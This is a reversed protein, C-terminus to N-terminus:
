LEKTFLRLLIFLQLLVDDVHPLREPFGDFAHMCLSRREFSKFMDRNKVGYRASVMDDTSVLLAVPAQGVMALGSDGRVEQVLANWPEGVDM